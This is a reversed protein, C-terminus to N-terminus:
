RASRNNEERKSELAILYENVDKFQVTKNGYNLCLKDSKDACSYGKESYKKSLSETAKRGWEDADLCFNIMRIEPHHKLYQELATDHKGCLAIRNHAKWAYPKGSHLVAISAHSLLDIPAEFVYVSDTQNGDLWFGYNEFELPNNPDSHHVNQHFKIHTNTGRETWFTPKGENNYNVFVVNNHSKEQYIRHQKMLEQILAKSLGRSKVLYAFANRYQDAKPPLVVKEYEGTNTRKVPAPSPPAAVIEAGLVEELAEPYTLREYQMLFAIAGSGHLDLSNWHFGKRDANIVFSDHETEHYERGVKKFSLNYRQQLFEIIDINNAQEKEEKTFRRHKSM